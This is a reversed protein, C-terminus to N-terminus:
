VVWLTEGLVNRQVATQGVDARVTKCLQMNSDYVKYETLSVTGIGDKGPGEQKIKIVHGFIDHDISTIVSEEDEVLTITKYQPIGYALYTTIKENGGVDNVKIKNGPLYSVTQTGGHAQSMTVLRQLGDYTNTAGDSENATIAAHSAFTNSGADNYSNHQYIASNAKKADETAILLPRLLNDFTTTEILRTSNSTCTNSATLVCRSKILKKMVWM